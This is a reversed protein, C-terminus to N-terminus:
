LFAILVSALVANAKDFDEGVVGLPMFSSNDLICDGAEAGAELLFTVGSCTAASRADNLGLSRSSTILWTL